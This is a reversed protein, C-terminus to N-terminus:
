NHNFRIKAQKGWELNNWRERRKMRLRKLADDAEDSTDLLVEALKLGDKDFICMTISFDDNDKYVQALM